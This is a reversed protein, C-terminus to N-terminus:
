GGGAPVLPQPGAAAPGVRPRAIREPRPEGVPSPLGLLAFAMRSSLAMITIQPNVGLSTPVVSADAVHLGELGHVRGTADVVSRGADAGAAATGLPHFALLELESPRIRAQRLPGSDGDRLAPLGRVPLIVERAGAAWYIEVLRELGQKFLGADRLNLDYRILPRGFLGRVEGRSSDSVMVGFQSMRRCRAMLQSLSLGHGPLSIAIQDPPGAAAELMIGRDAFEDVYYSQPVGRWMEIDEDFLARVATAPHISLNRGLGVARVGSRRLLLPTHIAGCALVVHECEVRLRGGGTTHAVVGRARGGRLEVAHARTGTYTTAGAAWARPVYTIGVHQKAATPCGFVCVGSGVCGRANRYVYDGSWGLREVARRVVEANRGALDAPVQSVNLEREVRRFFPDLEGETLEELGLERRWRELVAPPTRFCTGSNVLTTGGVGRGLPLLIPPSGVTTVQGGDRYLRPAMERPRADFDDTDWWEGEELMAVRMGGESLEKAAVAGGAGSGVVCADVRVTREGAIARGSEIRRVPPHFTGTGDRYAQPGTDRIRSM